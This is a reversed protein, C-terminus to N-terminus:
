VYVYFGKFFISIFEDFYALFVDLRFYEIFLVLKDFGELFPYFLLEM